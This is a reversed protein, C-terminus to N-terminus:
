QHAPSLEPPRRVLRLRCRLTLAPPRGLALSSPRGLALSPPRGLALSPPRGLALSSPLVRLVLLATVLM